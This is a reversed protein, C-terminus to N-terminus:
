ARTRDDNGIEADGTIASAGGGVPLANSNWIAAAAAAAAPSGFMRADLSKRPRLLEMSRGRSSLVPVPDPPEPM